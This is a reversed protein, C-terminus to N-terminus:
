GKPSQQNAVCQWIVIQWIVIKWMHDGKFVGIWSNFVFLTKAHMNELNTDIYFVDSFMTYLLKEGM